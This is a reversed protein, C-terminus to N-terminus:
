IGTKLIKTTTIDVTLMGIVMMQWRFYQWPRRIPGNRAQKHRFWLKRFQFDPQTVERILVKWHNEVAHLVLDSGRGHGVCSNGLAVEWWGVCWAHWGCQDEELEGLVLVAQPTHGQEPSKSSHVEWPPMLSAEGWELSLQFTHLSLKFYIMKLSIKGSWGLVREGVFVGVRERINTQRQNEM